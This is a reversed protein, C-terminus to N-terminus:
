SKRFMRRFVGIGILGSGLLILTAPEPVAAPAEVTLSAVYFSSGEQNFGGLIDVFPARVLLWNGGLNDFQGEPFVDITSQLFSVVAALNTFQTINFTTGLGRIIAKENEGLGSLSISEISYGVPVHFILGETVASSIYRPNLITGAGATTIGGDLPYTAGDLVGLGAGGTYTVSFPPSILQPATLVGSKTYGLAVAYVDLIGDPSWPTFNLGTLLSGTTTSVPSSAIPDGAIATFNYSIPDAGAERPPVLFGFSLLCVMVILTLIKKM